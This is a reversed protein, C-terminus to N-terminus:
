RRERLAKAARKARRKAAEIRALDDPSMPVPDDIIRYGSLDLGYGTLPGFTPAPVGDPEPWPEPERPLSLQLIAHLEIPIRERPVLISSGRRLAERWRQVADALDPREAIIRDMAAEIDALTPMPAGSATTTPNM